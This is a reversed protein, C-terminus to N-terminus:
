SPMRQLGDAIWWITEGLLRRPSPNYLPGTGDFLLVRARAVGRPSVPAPGDLRDALGLLGDTWDLVETSCLSVLAGARRLSPSSLVVYPQEADDVVRRLSAAVQHRVSREALQWARLAHLDSSQSPWGDALERDLRWRGLWVRLRRVLPANADPLAPSAGLM